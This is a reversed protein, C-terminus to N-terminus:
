RESGRRLSAFSSPVSWAGENSRPQHDSASAQRETLPQQRGTSKNVRHCPCQGWALITNRSAGSLRRKLSRDQSAQSPPRWCPCRSTGEDVREGKQAMDGCNPRSTTRPLAGRQRLSRFPAPSGRWPSISQAFLKFCPYQGVSYASTARHFAFGGPRERRM